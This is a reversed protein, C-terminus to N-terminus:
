HFSPTHVNYSTSVWYGHDLLTLQHSLAIHFHLGAKDQPGMHSPFRSGKKIITPFLSNSYLLQQWSISHHM